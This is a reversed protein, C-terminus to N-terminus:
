IFEALKQLISGFYFYFGHHAMTSSYLNIETVCQNVFFIYFKLTTLIHLKSLHQMEVNQLYLHNM